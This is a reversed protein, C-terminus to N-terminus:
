PKVGSADTDDSRPAVIEGPRLLQGGHIVVLEGDGLGATLVLQGTRYRDVEVPKLSVAKTQPDVVWVAPKGREAFFATWPLVVMDRPRSRFVGSVAAGLGMEPPPNDIGIKVRVTGKKADVTPAVERVVGVTKISPNSILTLEVHRDEPPDAVLAEFVEFVADRPGDQAVTYVKQAVGVVQGVEAYRATVIGDADARLETNALADEATGLEATARDLGAIAGDVEQKATDYNPRTTFGQALLESQRHFMARAEKLEAEASAIGARAASVDALQQTTELTALIQGKKVHDGVDVKRSAIRGEIRFALDSEVRAAIAGTLTVSSALATVKAAQVRVVPPPKPADQAPEGCGGLAVAPLALASIFGLLRARLRIAQGRM